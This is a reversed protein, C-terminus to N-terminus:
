QLPMQKKKTENKSFLLLFIKFDIVNLPMPSNQLNHVFHKKEEEKCDERFIIVCM